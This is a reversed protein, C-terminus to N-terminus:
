WSAALTAAALSLGYAGLAAAADRDAGAPAVIFRIAFAVGCTALYPLSELGIALALGTLGGAAWAAWRLRDSWVAAGLTAVALAIQM